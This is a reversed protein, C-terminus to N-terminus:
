NNIIQLKIPRSEAGWGSRYSVLGIGYEWIFQEYYGTEVGTNYRHYERTDGNAVMFNHWGKIEESLLDKIEEDQCAIDSNAIIDNKTKFKNIDIDEATIKYIRNEQVYFYGLIMRKENYYLVPEMKLQYLIGDDIESIKNIHLTVEITADIYYDSYPEDYICSYRQETTGQKFFYPNEINTNFYNNIIIKESLEEKFVFDDKISDFIYIKKIYYEKKLIQKDNTGTQYIQQIGTLIIDTNGDGDIDAYSANLKGGLYVASASINEDDESTLGYEIATLRMDEYEIDVVYPINYIIIDPNFVSVFRLDGNGSHSSCYAAIFTGQSINVVDYSFNRENGGLTTNIIKTIKNDDVYIVYLRNEWMFQASLKALYIINGTNDFHRTIDVNNLYRLTYDDQLKPATNIFEIFSDVPNNNFLINNRTFKQTESIDYKSNQYILNIDQEDNLKININKIDKAYLQKILDNDLGDRMKNLINMNNSKVFYVKGSEQNENVQPIYEGWYTLINEGNTTFTLLIDGKEFNGGTIHNSFYSDFIFNISKDGGQIMAKWKAGMFPGDICIKAYCREEEKFIQIKYEWILNPNGEIVSPACEFFSYEGLWSECQTQYKCGFLIIFIIILVIIKLTILIRVGMKNKRM